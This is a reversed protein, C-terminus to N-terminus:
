EKDLVDISLGCENAVDRARDAMMTPTLYAGPENAMDRTFNVSEGIIQGRRIGRKVADADAGEIFVALREIQREEKDVTRYKDLDFSAIVAGEAAASATDEADGDFRPVVGISKVNKGRLTRVAAGVMESVSARTYESREGVGVLLVRRAKGNDNGSLHLFASEGEKGKLEESDLVSKIIGNCPEDIEKLFGEDAKEDKFVAVALVQGDTEQTSGTAVEIQMNQKL